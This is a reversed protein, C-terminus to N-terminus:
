LCPLIMSTRNQHPNDCLVRLFPYSYSMCWIVYSVFYRTRIRVYNHGLLCSVDIWHQLIAPGVDYVPPSCQDLMPDIHRAQQPRRLGGICNYHRTNTSIRVGYRSSNQTHEDITRQLAVNKPLSKIGQRLQYVLRCEPCRLFNEETILEEACAQCLTHGCGPLLLPNHYVEFCM